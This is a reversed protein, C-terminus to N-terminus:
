ITFDKEDQKQAPSKDEPKPAEPSPNDAPQTGSPAVSSATGNKKRKVVVVALLIAIVAVAAIVAIYIIIPDISGSSTDPNGSSSSTPNATSGSSVVEVTQDASDWNFQNGDADFGDVAITLTHTGVSATVPIAITVKTPYIGNAEVLQPDSSLDQTYYQGSEQWDAHIGIRYLSLQSSSASQFNITVEVTKGPSPSSSWFITGTASITTTAASAISASVFIAMLFTVIITVKLTKV